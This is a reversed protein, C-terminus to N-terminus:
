RSSGNKPTTRKLEHPIYSASLSQVVAPAAAVFRTGARYRGAPVTADGTIRVAPVDAGESKGGPDVLFVAAPDIWPVRSLTLWLAADPVKRAVLCAVRARRLLAARADNWAFDDALWVVLPVKEDYRLDNPRLLIAGPTLPEVEVELRERPEVAVRREEGGYKSVEVRDSAEPTSYAVAFREAQPDWALAHITALPFDVALRQATPVHVTRVIDGGSVRVVFSIKNGRPAWQVGIEDAPDDPVWSVESGELAVLGIDFDGDRRASFAVEGRSESVDFSDIAEFAETLPRDGNVIRNGEVRVAGAAKAVPLVSHTVNGAGDIAVSGIRMAAPVGDWGPPITQLATACGGLFVLFPPIVRRM